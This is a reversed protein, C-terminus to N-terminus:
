DDDFQRAASGYPSSDQGLPADTGNAFQGNKSAARIVGDETSFYFSRTGSSTSVPAANIECGGNILPLNVVMFRYGNKQNSEGLSSDILRQAQLQKLDGCRGAGATARYTQEAASLTRVTAVAGAENAARRAALLNPIAIAAIIPFILMVIAGTAVGAIAFGKGGYVNPKKNAKVLAVIGLVLGLLALPIGILIISSVFGLIALVMSAIALGSKLNAPTQRHSPQYQSRRNQSQFNQTPQNPQGYNQYQNSQASNAQAQFDPSQHPQNNSQYAGHSFESSTPFNASEDFPAHQEFPPAVFASAGYGGAQLDFGCRKCNDATAWNTLNCEPCKVSSMTKEIVFSHILM